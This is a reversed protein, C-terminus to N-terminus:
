IEFSSNSVLLNHGQVNRWKDVPEQLVEVEHFKNFYNLVTTKGSGINGEIVVTFPKPKSAMIKYFPISRRPLESQRSELFFPNSQSNAQNNYGSITFNRALFFNAADTIHRKLQIVNCLISLTIVQDWVKVLM